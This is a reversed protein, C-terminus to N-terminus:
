ARVVTAHVRNRGARKAAYLQADAQGLLERVTAPGGELTAVGISVTLRRGPALANPLALRASAERIREALAQADAGAMDPLLCAFEEGGHRAALDAPRCAAQALVRAIARLYDDGTSHGYCDNVCKFHDVDVLLVSLPAGTHQRRAHARQLAQDFARRNGLGTLEDSLSLRELRENATQLAQKQRLIQRNSEALLHALRRYRLFALGFGLMLVAAVVSAAQLLTRQSRQVVYREILQREGQEHLAVSESVDIAALYRDFAQVIHRHRPSPGFYFSYERPDESLTHIVELDFYDHAYRKEEFISKSFVAVDLTGELLAQFLGDSNIQDFSTLQAAPVIAQLRPELAVGKVVGVRYPTLDNVGHVPLRRGKRAIIAYYSAYYPLTFTGRRAREPQLSLPMFVDARGEQVQRIKDAVTQGRAAVIEYRLGLEGTIFCWVDVGIGGYADRATDHRVMPPADVSLVRLPAMARFEALEQQSPAVPQRLRIHQSGECAQAPLWAMGLWVAWLLGRRVTALGRRLRGHGAAWSNM